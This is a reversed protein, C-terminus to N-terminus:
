GQYWCGDEMWFYYNTNDLSMELGALNGNEMFTLYMYINNLLDAGEGPWSIWYSDGWENKEWQMDNEESREYSSERFYQIGDSFLPEADYAQSTRYSKAIPRSTGVDFTTQESYEEHIEEIETLQFNGDYNARHWDGEEGEGRYSCIINISGKNIFVDVAALETGEFTSYFQLTKFDGKGWSISEAQKGDLIAPDFELPFEFLYTEVDLDAVEEEKSIGPSSLEWMRELNEPIEIQRGRSDYTVLMQGERKIDPLGVAVPDKVQQVNEPLFSANDGGNVEDEEIEAKEEEQSEASVMEEHEMMAQWGGRRYVSLSVTIVCVTAILVFAGLGIGWKKLNRRKTDKKEEITEQEARGEKESKTKTGCYPCFIADGIDKGCMKCYM